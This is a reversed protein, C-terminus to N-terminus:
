LLSTYTTAIYVANKYGLQHLKNTAMKARHGTNCYAIIKINKDPFQLPMQKELDSSQIHVSGPYFGLTNRELDTRVDLVLDIKNMKLLKKALDPKIIYPSARAYYYAYYVLLALVLVIVITSTLKVNYKM